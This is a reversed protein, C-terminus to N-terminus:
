KIMKGQKSGFISSLISKFIHQNIQPNNFVPCDTRLNLKTLTKNRYPYRTHPFPQLNNTSPYSIHILHLKNPTHKFFKFQSKKRVNWKLKIISYPNNTNYRTNLIHSYIMSSTTFSIIALPIPETAQVIVPKKSKHTKKWIKM